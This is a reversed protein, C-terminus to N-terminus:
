CWMKLMFRLVNHMYTMDSICQEIDVKADV